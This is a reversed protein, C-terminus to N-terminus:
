HRHYADITRKWQNYDTHYIRHFRKIGSDKFSVYFNALTERKNFEMSSFYGCIAQIAKNYEQPNVFFVISSRDDETNEYVIVNYVKSESITFLFANELYITDSGYTARKEISYQIKYKDLQKSCLYSLYQQKLHLIYSKIEQNTANNFYRIVDSKPTIDLDPIFSSARHSSLSSFLSKFRDEDNFVVNGNVVSIELDPFKIEFYAKISNYASKSTKLSYIAVVIHNEDRVEIKGEGFSINEWSFIKEDLPRNKKTHVINNKITEVYKGSNHGDVYRQLRGRIKWCEPNDRLKFKHIALDVDSTYITENHYKERFYDILQRVYVSVEDYHQREYKPKVHKVKLVKVM